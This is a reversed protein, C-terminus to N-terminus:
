QYGLLCIIYHKILNVAVKMLILRTQSCLLQGIMPTDVAVFFLANAFFIISVLIYSIVHCTYVCIFTNAVIDKDILMLINDFGIFEDWCKGTLKKINYCFM